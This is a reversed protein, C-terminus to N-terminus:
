SQHREFLTLELVSPERIGPGIWDNALKLYDAYRTTDFLPYDSGACISGASLLERLRLAAPRIDSHPFPEKSFHAIASVGAVLNPLASLACLSKDWDQDDQKERRPWGLHPLYVRLEPCAEALRLLEAALAGIGAESHPILWKGSCALAEAFPRFARLDATRVRIGAVTEPEFMAPGFSVDEPRFCFAIRFRRSGAALLQDLCSRNDKAWTEVILARNVGANEMLQELGALPDDLSMDLHTYGDIM